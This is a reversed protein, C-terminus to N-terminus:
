HWPERVTLTWTTDLGRIRVRDPAIGIVELPGSREGVRLVVPAEQGPVGEVIAAPDAGWLIGSLSLAPKPVPPTAPAVLPPPATGYRIVPPQHGPRFPTERRAIELLALSARRGGGESLAKAGDRSV